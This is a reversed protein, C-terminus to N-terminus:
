EKINKGQISEIAEQKLLKSPFEKESAADLLTWFNKMATEVVQKGIRTMEVTSKVATGESPMEYGEKGFDYSQPNFLLLIVPQRGVV